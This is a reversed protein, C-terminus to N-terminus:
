SKITNLKPFCIASNKSSLWSPNWIVGSANWRCVPTPIFNPFIGLVSGHRVTQRNITSHANSGTKKSEDIRSVRRHLIVRNELLTVQPFAPKSLLRPRLTTRLRNNASRRLRPYQKWTGKIRRNLLPSFRHHLPNPNRQTPVSDSLARNGLPAAIEELVAALHHADFDERSTPKPHPDPMTQGRHLCANPLRRPLRRSM